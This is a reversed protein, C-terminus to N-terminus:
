RPEGVLTNALDDLILQRMDRLDDPLGIRTFHHVFLQILQFRMLETLQAVRIACLNRSYPSTRLEPESRFYKDTEISYIRRTRIVFGLEPQGHIQNLFMHDDGMQKTAAGLQRRAYGIPDNQTRCFTVFQDIPSLASSSATTYLAVKKSLSTKTKQTLSFEDTLRDPISTSDDSELWQQLTYHETDPQSIADAIQSVIQQKHSHLFRDVWFEVLYEYFSYIPLFSCVGDTKNHLLDCDANIVVGLHPPNPREQLRIIDGQGYPADSSIYKTETLTDKNYQKSDMTAKPGQSFHASRFEDMPQHTLHVHATQWLEQNYGYPSSITDKM